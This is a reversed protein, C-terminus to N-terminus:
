QTPPKHTDDEVNNKDAAPVSGRASLPLVARDGSTPMVATNGLFDRPDNVMAGLNNRVSCGLTPDFSNDDVSPGVIPRLPCVPPRAEYVIAEIRVRFHGSPDTSSPILRINYPTVGMARAEHAVQGMLRRSGSVELHLADRRGRSANAIFDRLQYTETRRLGQLLLVSMKQEVETVQEAPASYIPASTTCGGVSAAIAILPCLHRFIM